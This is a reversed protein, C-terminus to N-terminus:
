VKKLEKKLTEVRHLYEGDVEEYFVNERPHASRYARKLKDMMLHTYKVTTEIDEHGLLEQVYRVDAGAELLHTATSHRISHVTLGPRKKIGARERIEHFLSNIVAGHIRGVPSLFVAGIDGPRVRKVLKKRETNLYLKLFDSATHSFPVYRDKLGKGERIIMTREKLDVDCLDLKVAESKRLGSSYLLEFIARDRKGLPAKTDITDLFLAIEEKTFIEKKPTVEKLEVRFDEFPNRIIMENRYLFRFFYKLDCMKHKVSSVSYPRGLRNKKVKLYRLYEELDETVTERVDRKENETLYDFFYRVERVKGEVTVDAFGLSKIYARFLILQKKLKM